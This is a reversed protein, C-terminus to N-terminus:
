HSASELERELHETIAAFQKQQPCDVGALRRHCELVHRALQQKDVAEPAFTQWEGVAEPTTEIIRIIRDLRTSGFLKKRKEGSASLLFRGQEGRGHQLYLDLLSGLWTSDLYECGSLDVTLRVGPDSLVQAMVERASPSERMTADGEIRFVACDQACALKFLCGPM